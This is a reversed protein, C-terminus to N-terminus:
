ILSASFYGECIDCTFNGFTKHVNKIHGNLNGKNTFSVQCINCSFKKEANKGHMRSVHQNLKFIGKFVKDCRDCKQMSLNNLHVYKVHLNLESIIKFSKEFIFLTDRKIIDIACKSDFTLLFVDELLSEM